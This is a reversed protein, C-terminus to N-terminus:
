VSYSSAAFSPFSDMQVSGEEAVPSRYAEMQDTVEVAKKLGLTQIEESGSGAVAFELDPDLQMMRQEVAVAEISLCSHKGADKM